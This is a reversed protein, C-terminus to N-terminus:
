YRYKTSYDKPAIVLGRGKRAGRYVIEIIDILEQKDTMAWNIKNNDGTGLDVMIHKNRYFFMCTSADFIEYMGNFDPVEDIDVLYIVAFNKVKEAINALVEDQVMCTPDQDRGFRILVVRDEETVIAQDVEWGSCLHPLMYAM